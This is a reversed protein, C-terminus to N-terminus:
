PASSGDDLRVAFQVDRFGAQVAADVAAVVLKWRVASQAAIVLPNAPDAGDRRRQELLARLTDFSGDELPRGMVFIRCRQGGDLAELAIKVSPIIEVAAGPGPGSRPDLETQIVGERAIELSAGLIFFVLLVMIVDVMPALNPVREGVHVQQRRIM